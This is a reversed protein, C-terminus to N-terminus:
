TDAPHLVVILMCLMACGLGSSRRHHLRRHWPQTATDLDCRRSYPWPGPSSTALVSLGLKDVLLRVKAHLFKLDPTRSRIRANGM